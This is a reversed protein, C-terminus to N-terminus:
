DEKKRFVNIVERIKLIAAAGFYLIFILLSVFALIPNIEEIFGIFGLVVAGATLTVLSGLDREKWFGVGGTLTKM